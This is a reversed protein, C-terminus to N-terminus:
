EAVGKVAKGLLGTKKLAYGALPVGVGARLLNRLQMARAYTKMAQAHEDGVGARTAADQIDTNFDNNLLKLQRSMRPSTGLREMISRQGLETAFDRAEPYAIPQGSPKNANKVRDALLNAQRVESGGRSTMEQQRALTPGAKNLLVPQNQAGTQAKQFLEGAKARTPIEGVLPRTPLAADAAGLVMPAVQAATGVLTGMAGPNTAVDKVQSLYSEGPKSPPAQEAARDMAPGILPIASIGHSLLGSPNGESLDQLGHKIEGGSRMLGQYAGRILPVGPANELVHRVPHEKMEQYESKASEPDFGFTKGLSSFFGPQEQQHPPPGHFHPYGAKDISQVTAGAPLGEIPQVTAGKPLGQVQPPM